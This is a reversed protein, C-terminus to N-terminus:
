SSSTNSRYYAIHTCMRKYTMLWLQKVVIGNPKQMMRTHIIMVRGGEGEASGFPIRVIASSSHEDRREVPLSFTIHIIICTM